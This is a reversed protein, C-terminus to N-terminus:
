LPALTIDSLPVLLFFPTDLTGLRSVIRVAESWTVLWWRSRYPFLDEGGAWFAAVQAAGQKMMTVLEPGRTPGPSWSTFM